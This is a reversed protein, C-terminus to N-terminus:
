DLKKRVIKQYVYKSEDESVIQTRKNSSRLFFNHIKDNNNTGEFHTYDEGLASRNDTTFLPYNSKNPSTSNSRDRDNQINRSISKDDNVSLKIGRNDEKINYINISTNVQVIELLM